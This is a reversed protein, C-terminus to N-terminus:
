ARMTPREIIKGFDTSLNVNRAAYSEFAHAVEQKFGYDADSRYDNGVVKTTPINSDYRAM